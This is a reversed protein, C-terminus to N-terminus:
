KLFKYKGSKGVGKLFSLKLIKLSFSCKPNEFDEREVVEFSIQKELFDV